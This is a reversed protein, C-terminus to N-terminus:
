PTVEGPLEFGHQRLVARGEPSALFRAFAEGGPRNSGRACVVLVQELPAHLSPDVPLASGGVDDLVLSHAVLAADVNGTQAFQLAQRVNEAFVLRPELVAWIGARELAQKAARGYPAVEPNALAIRTFRPEALAELTAPAEGRTWVVLRGRGYPARTAGDCAGSAVVDDVFRADAAAFLDFPAGERLQKALLGSSGFSFRVPGGGRQAFDKAAVEFASTLDSAAAVQVPPASTSRTCGLAVVALLLLARAM